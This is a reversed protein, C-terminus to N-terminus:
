ILEDFTGNFGGTVTGNNTHISPTEVYASPTTLNDHIQSIDNSLQRLDFDTVRAVPSILSDCFTPVSYDIVPGSGISISIATDGIVDVRMMLHFSISNNRTIDMIVENILRQELAYLYQEMNLGRTFSAADRIEIAPMGNLTNNTAVFTLKTFMLEMMVAPVANSLITAAITEMSNGNWHETSGREFPAMVGGDMPTAQHVNGKLYVKTVHDMAAEPFVRVFDAWRVSGTHSYDTAAILHEMFGDLTIRPDKLSSRAKSYQYDLGSGEFDNESTIAATKLANLTRSLFSPAHTNSRRSKKPRPSMVTELGIVHDDAIAESMLSVAVDEPRSMYYLPAPGYGQNAWGNHSISQEEPLLSIIQSAEAVADRQIRGTPTNELNSRIHIVNNFFLRMEPDLSQSQPAFGYHETFGSIILRNVHGHGLDETAEILFRLRREGWGHTIPVVGRSETSPRMIKSAVGSLAENTISAGNLTVEVLENVEDGTLNTTYPRIVMDNYTGTSTFLMKVINCNRANM